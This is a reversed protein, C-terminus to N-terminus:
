SSDPYYACHIWQKSGKQLPLAPHGDCQRRASLASSVRRYLRLYNLVKWVLSYLSHSLGTLDRICYQIQKDAAAHDAEHQLHSPPKLQLVFVPKHKLMVYFMLVPASSNCPAPLRLPFLYM